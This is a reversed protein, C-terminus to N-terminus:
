RASQVSFLHTEISYCFVFIFVLVTVGMASSTEPILRFLKRNEDSIPRNHPLDALLSSIEKKHRPVIVLMHITASTLFIMLLFELVCKRGVTATFVTASASFYM